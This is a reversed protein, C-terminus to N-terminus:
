VTAECGNIHLEMTDFFAAPSNVLIDTTKLHYLILVNALFPYSSLEKLTLEVFHDFVSLVIRRSNGVFQKPINSWKTPNASLPNFTM